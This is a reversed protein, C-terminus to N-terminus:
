PIPGLAAELAPLAMSRPFSRKFRAARAHADDQRGTQLLAQIWLAEREEALRARPFAAAHRELEAIAAAGQGRGVATRAVDLMAREAALQDDRGAGAAAAASAAPAGPSSPLDDPTMPATAPASPAAAPAQVQLVIIRESRALPSATVAPTSLRAHAAAGLAAGVGLLAIAKAVAGLPGAAGGGSAALRAGTGAGRPGAAPDGGRGRNGSEGEGRGGDGGGGLAIKARVAALTRMRVADSLPPRAGEERLLSGLDDPLPDLREDSM